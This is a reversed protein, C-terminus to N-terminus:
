IFEDEEELGFLITEEGLLEPLHINELIKDAGDCSEGM